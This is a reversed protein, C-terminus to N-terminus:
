SSLSHQLGTRQNALAVCISIHVHNIIITAPPSNSASNTKGRPPALRRRNVFANDRNDVVVVFEVTAPANEATYNALVKGPLRELPLSLKSGDESRIPIDDM